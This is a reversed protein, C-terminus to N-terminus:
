KGVPKLVMYDYLWAAIVAGTVPGVVYIYFQDWEGWGGDIFIEDGVYPGLTRAPNLSSGTINGTVIVDVCVILGIMLGGLAAAPKREDVAVAMIVIMLFFTAVAESFIAQWDDIGPFKTTAGLGGIEAARDGVIMAFSISAAIAGVCQAIIYPTVEESPFKKDAWLAITVAPNIHAGSVHGFIYVAAAIALAFAMGIAFWAAIDAGVYFGEAASDYKQEETLMFTMAAAGPGLFVLIYTGIAEAVCRQGLTYEEPAM